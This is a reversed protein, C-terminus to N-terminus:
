FIVEFTKWSYLLITGSLFWRMKLTLYFSRVIRLVNKDKQIIIGPNVASKFMNSPDTKSQKVFGVHM